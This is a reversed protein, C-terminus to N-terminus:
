FPKNFTVNEELPCLWLIPSVLHTNKPLIFPGHMAIAIEFCIKEGKSTAGEPIRLSFNHKKNTYEIGNYDCELVNHDVFSVNGQKMAESRFNVAVPIGSEVPISHKVDSHEDVVTHKDTREITSDEDYVHDICIEVWTGKKRYKSGVRM